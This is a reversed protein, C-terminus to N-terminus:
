IAYKVRKAYEEVLVDYVNVVKTYHVINRLSRGCNLCKVQFGGFLKGCWKCYTWDRTFTFAGLETRAVIIRLCKMLYEVDPMPEKLYINLGHGGDLKKQFRSEIIFRRSLPVQAYLPVHVNHTYFLEGGIKEQVNKLGFRAIDTRLLREGVKELSICTVKWRGRRRSVERAMFDVIKEAFSLANVDEYLWSGTHIKVAEPLGVYGINCTAHELHYYPSGGDRINLLPLHEKEIQKEILERKVNLTEIALSIAKRLRSFFKTDDGNAELAIRPLNIIVTDLCGTRALLYKSDESKESDLRSLDWGYSVERTQWEANLNIFYPTTWRTTLKCIEELIEEYDRNKSLMKNCIKIIPLPSIFPKGASDGEYMAQLIAKFLILAEDTYDGYKEEIYKPPTVTLGFALPLINGRSTITQNLHLLAEGIAKKVEELNLNSVYPAFVYNINDILQGVALNSQMLHALRIAFLLAARLSKPPRSFALSLGASKVEFGNELFFTLDHHITAPRLMWYNTNCVHIIGSLHADSVKRPLQKILTYESMVADGTAAHVKDPFTPAYHERELLREVDYVPLGLRTMSHRYDELGQELLIANVFERILPATLYSIELKLLREEAERAIAEAIKKPANAERRLAEVIKKREFPEMTLSSTRVLMRRAKKRSIEEIEWILEAMIKGVDTLAYKGSAPVTTVLGAEVLTKLHYGFKGADTRPSMNLEQM